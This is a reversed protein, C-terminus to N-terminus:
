VTHRGILNARTVRQTGRAPASLPFTGILYDPAFQDGYSSATVVTEATVRSILVESGGRLNFSLLGGTYQQLAPERTITFTSYTTSGAESQTNILTSKGISVDEQLGLSSAPLEIDTNNSYSSFVYDNIAGVDGGININATQVQNDILGTLVDYVATAAYSLSGSPQDYEALTAAWADDEAQIQAATANPPYPPQPVAGNVAGTASIALHMYRQQSTGSFEKHGWLDGIRVKKEIVYPSKAPDDEVGSAYSLAKELVYNGQGDSVYVEYKADSEIYFSNPPANTGTVGAYDGEALWATVYNVTDLQISADEVEVFNFDQDEYVSILKVIFRREKGDLCVFRERHLYGDDGATEAIVGSIPDIRDDIETPVDDLSLTSKNFVGANDRYRQELPIPLSLTKNVTYDTWFGEGYSGGYTEIDYEIILGADWEALNKTQQAARHADTFRPPILNVLSSNSPAQFRAMESPKWTGVFGEASGDQPPSISKHTPRKAGGRFSTIYSGGSSLERVGYFESSYRFADWPMTEPVFAYVDAINKSNGVGIWASTLTFSGAMQITNPIGAMAKKSKDNQRSRKLSKGNVSASKGSKM